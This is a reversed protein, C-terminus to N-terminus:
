PNEKKFREFMEDCITKGLSKVLKLMMLRSNIRKMQDPSEGLRVLKCFYRYYQETYPTNENM